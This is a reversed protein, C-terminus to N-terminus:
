IHILSLEEPVVEKYHPSNNIMQMVDKGQQSAESNQEELIEERTKAASNMVSDVPMDGFVAKLRKDIRPDDKIKNTM